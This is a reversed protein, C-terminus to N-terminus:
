PLGLLGLGLLRLGLGLWLIEHPPPPPPPPILLFTGKEGWCIFNPLICWQFAWLIRIFLLFITLRDIFFIRVRDNWPLFHSQM